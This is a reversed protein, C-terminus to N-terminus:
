AKQTRLTLCFSLSWINTEVQLHPYHGPPFEWFFVSESVTHSPFSLLESSKSFLNLSLLALIIGVTYILFDLGLSTFPNTPYPQFHYLCSKYGWRQSRIQNRGSSFHESLVFCFFLVVWSTPYSLYKQLLWPWFYLDTYENSVSQSWTWLLRLDSM